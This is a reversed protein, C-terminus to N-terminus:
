QRPGARQRRGRWLRVVTAAVLGTVGLGIEVLYGQRELADGAYTMHLAAGGSLDVLWANLGVNAAAHVAPGAGSLTWQGDFTQALLVVGWGQSRPAFGIDTPLSQTSVDSEFKPAGTANLAATAVTVSNLRTGTPASVTLQAGPQVPFSGLTVSRYSSPLASYLTLNSLVLSSRATHPPLTLEMGRITGPPTMPGAGSAYGSPPLYFSAHSPSGQIPVVTEYGPIELSTANRLIRWTLPIQPKGQFDLSLGNWGTLNTVNLALSQSSTSNNEFDWRLYETGNASFVTLNQTGSASSNNALVPRVFGPTAYPLAQSNAIPAGSLNVRVSSTGYQVQVWAPDPPTSVRASVGIDRFGASGLPTTSLQSVLSGISGNVTVIQGGSANWPDLQRTVNMGLADTAEAVVQVPVGAASAAALAGPPISSLTEPTAIIGAAHEAYAIVDGSVSSGDILVDSAGAYWPQDLVQYLLSEPGYYLFYRPHFSVNGVYGPLLYLSQAGAVAWPAGLGTQNELSFYSRQPPYAFSNIYSWNAYRTAAVYQVNVGALFKTMNRSNGLTLGDGIFRDLALSYPTGAEFIAVDGGTYYPAMFLSSETVGAWPSREYIGSFPIALVEGQLGRSGILRFGDTYQAPYAFLGPPQAVVEFSELLTLGVVLCALGALVRRRRAVLAARRARATWGARRPSPPKAAPGPPRWARPLVDALRGPTPRRGRELDSLLLALLFSYALVTIESWRLVAPIANFYPVHDYVWGNFTSLGPFLHGTSFVMALLAALYTAVRNWNRALVVYVAIGVPVVFYLPLLTLDFLGYSFRHFTFHVFSNEQVYGIFAYAFNEGSTASFPLYTTTINTTYEPRVGLAYPYAWPLILVAFAAVATLVVLWETRGYPHALFRRVLSYVALLVAFFLVFYLMGLDGISVLLYLLFALATGVGVTPRDLWRYLGALFLPAVALSIMTATHGEFLQPTQALLTYYFGAVVGALATSGLWRSAVYVSLGAGVWAALEVTRVATGPDLGLVLPTLVTVGTFGPFPQGWDTFPYLWIAWPHHQVFWFSLYSNLANTGQPFEGPSGLGARFVALALGLYALGAWAVPPVRRVWGLLPRFRSSMPSEPSRRAPAPLSTAAPPSPADEGNM